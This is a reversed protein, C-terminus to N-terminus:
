QWGLERYMKAISMSQKDTLAKDGYRAHFEDDAAIAGAKDNNKIHKLLQSLFAQYLVQQQGTSSKDDVKNSGVVELDDASLKSKNRYADPAIYSNTMGATIGLEEPDVFGFKEDRPTKSLFERFKSDRQNYRSRAYNQKAEVPNQQLHYDIRDFLDTDLGAVKAPTSAEEMKKAANKSAKGMKQVAEDITVSTDTKGRQAARDMNRQLLQMAAAKVQETAPNVKGLMQMAPDEKLYHLVGIANQMSKIDDDEFYDPMDGYVEPLYKKASKRLEPQMSQYARFRDLTQNLDYGQSQKDMLHTQLAQQKLTEAGIAIRQAQEQILGPMQFSKFANNIQNAAFEQDAARKALAFKQKDLNFAQKAIDINAKTAETQADTHEIESRWLDPRYQSEQVKLATDAEQGTLSAMLSKLRMDSTQYFEDLKARNAENAISQGEDGLAQSRLSAQLAQQRMALEQNQRQNEQLMAFQNIPDGTAFMNGASGLQMAM